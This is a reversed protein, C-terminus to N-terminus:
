EKEIIIELIESEKNILTLNDIHIHANDQKAVSLLIDALEVLDRSGGKIVVSNTENKIILGNQSNSDFLGNEEFYKTNKYDIDM